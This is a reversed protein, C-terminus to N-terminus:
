KKLKEDEVVGAFDQEATAVKALVHGNKRRETVEEMFKKIDSTEWDKSKLFKELETVKMLREEKITVDSVKIKKSRLKQKLLKEDKFLRNGLKPFLGFGYYDENNNEAQELAFKKCDNYFKLVSDANRLVNELEKKSLESPSPLRGIDNIPVLEDGLVDPVFKPQNNLRAECHNKAECWVCQADDDPVLKEKKSKIQKLVPILVEKEWTLLEEVTLCETRVPGDEHDCNPQVITLRVDQFNYRKNLAHYAGLGYIRLQTNGLVGVPWRGNKYDDIELTGNMEAITVDSTGGMEIKYVKTLDYRREPFMKIRNSDYKRMRKRVYKVCLNANRVEKDTILFSKEMGDVQVFEGKFSSCRRKKLLAQEVMYHVATGLQAADNTRNKPITGDSILKEILRISGPCKLWRSSASAALRSHATM